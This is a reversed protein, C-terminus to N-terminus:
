YAYEIEGFNGYYNESVQGQSFKELSFFNFTFM